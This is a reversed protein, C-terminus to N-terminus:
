KEKEYLVLNNIRNIERFGLKSCLIQIGKDKLRAGTRVVKTMTFLYDLMLKGVELSYTIGTKPASHDKLSELVYYGNILFYGVVGRRTGDIEIQWFEKGWDQIMKAVEERTADQKNDLEAIDLFYDIDILPVLTVRKSELNM